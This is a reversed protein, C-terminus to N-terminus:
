NVCWFFQSNEAWPCLYKGIHLGRLLTAVGAIMMMIIMIIIYFNDNKDNNTFPLIRLFYM